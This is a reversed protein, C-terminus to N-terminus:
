QTVRFETVNVGTIERILVLILFALVLIVLGVIAQTLTGKAAEVAKPDGGSVLYRFGGIVLMIFLVIGALALIVSIFNSFACELGKITAVGDQTCGKITEWDVM